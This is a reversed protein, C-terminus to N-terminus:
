AGTLAGRFDPHAIARLAEAREPVTLGRLRAVGYETIVRDALYRPVTVVAGPDLRRVIRSHKGRAATSPLALISRAGPAISAAIAFDPQGGPGSIVRDGATEANITGDLTIEVASNIATFRHSAALTPAGHSYAAPVLCVAPNRHVWDFLERDGIVEAAVLLDRDAPKKRGTIAGTEYLWALGGSIMGGHVGLDKHNGLNRLVSDPLAGIGFQITAEDPVEEAAFQAIARTVDDAPATPMEHLADEIDVLYDFTSAELEGAGFTYPMQPNVQAIVLPASNVVDITSGVNTGLSYRGDPGPPSVQVLAADVPHDGEPAYLQSFNAYRCPLVRCHGSEILPRVFATAQLTTFRFPEGPHDFIALKALHFASVIELDSFRDRLRDLEAVLGGPAGCGAAVFVRSGDRIAEFATKADTKRGPRTGRRPQAYAAFDTARENV